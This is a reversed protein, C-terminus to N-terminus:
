KLIRDTGTIGSFGTGIYYRGTDVAQCVFKEVINASGKVMYEKNVPPITDKPGGWPAHDPPPKKSRINIWWLM